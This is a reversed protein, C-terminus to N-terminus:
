ITLPTYLIKIIPLNFKQPPITSAFINKDNLPLKTDLTPLISLLRLSPKKRWPCFCVIEDNVYKSQPIQGQQQVNDDMHGYYTGSDIARRLNILSVNFM